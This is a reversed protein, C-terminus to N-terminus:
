NPTEYVQVFGRPLNSDRDISGSMAKWIDKTEVWVSPYHPFVDLILFKDSDEHYAALPSFHGSDDYGLIRLDYNIIVGHTRYEKEKYTNSLPSIFRQAENRFNDLTKIYNIDTNHFALRKVRENAEADPGLAYMIKSKFGLLKAANGIKALTLGKRDLDTQYKWGKKNLYNVVDDENVSEVNVPIEDRNDKIIDSLSKEDIVYKIRYAVNLGNIIDALSAPGCYKFNSQNQHRSILLDNILGAEQMMQQGKVTHLPVLGEPVKHEIVASTGLVTSLLLYRLIM